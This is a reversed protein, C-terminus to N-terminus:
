MHPPLLLRRTQGPVEAGRVVVVVLAGSGHSMALSPAIVKFIALIQPIKSPAHGMARAERFVMTKEENNLHPM